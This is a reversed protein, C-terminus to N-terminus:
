ISFFWIETENPLDEKEFDMENGVRNINIGKAKKLFSEPGQISLSLGGIRYHMPVAVKPMIKEMVDCATKGDITFTGGVPVFLVDVKGIKELAEDDPVHGLDGLHCFSIDDLVFKFIINEGRKVGKVEDHYSPIGTILVDGVKKVRSTSVVKVNEGKVIRVCNHDFHDHSVLVIDAKVVPPAIGISKGDHPDTVITKDNSIEFCAHGHWRIKM